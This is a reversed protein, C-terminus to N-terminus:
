PGPFYEKFLAATSEDGAVELREDTHDIRGYVFLVVAEDSGTVTTAAAGDGGPAWARGHAVWQETFSEGVLRISAGEAPAKGHEVSLGLLPRILAVCAAREGATLAGDRGLAQALDSTHLGAEVAFLTLAGPVPMTGAPIAMQTAPDVEAVDPLADSLDAYGQKVVGSLAGRSAEAPVGDAGALGSDGAVARRAADAEMAQGWAVHAVLDRVAWGGLRTPLDLDEDILDDVAAGFRGYAELTTTIAQQTSLM